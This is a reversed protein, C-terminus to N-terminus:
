EDRGFAGDRAKRLARILHNISARDQFDFNVFLGQHEPIDNHDKLLEKLTLPEGPNPPRMVVGLSMGTEAGWRVEANFSGTRTKITEKPM